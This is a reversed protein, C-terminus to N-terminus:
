LCFRLSQMEYEGIMRPYALNLNKMIEIFKEEPKTLRPNYIKEEWVTTCTQGKYDHAPYLRLCFRVEFGYEM